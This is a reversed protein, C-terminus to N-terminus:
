PSPDGAFLATAKDFAREFHDAFEVSPDALAEDLALDLLGLMFAVIIRTTVPDAQGERQAIAESIHDIAGVFREHIAQQVRHDARVLQRFQDFESVDPAKTVLFALALAKVDRILVGTPGGALFEALDQPNRTPKEGIVADLKGPVYNFLTRRSVGACEALEEMTFGDLGHEVTLERACRTITAM